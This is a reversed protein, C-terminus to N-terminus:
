GRRPLGRRRRVARPRRLRRGARELAREPPVVVDVHEVDLRIREDRQEVCAGARRCRRSRVRHDRRIAAEARVALGVEVCEQEEATRAVDLDDDGVQNGGPEGHEVARAADALRRQEARADGPRQALERLLREDDHERTPTVIGRARQGVVDGSRGSQGAPVPEDLRHPARGGIAIDVEDEVLGLLVEEVVRLVPANSRSSASSTVAGSRTSTSRETRSSASALSSRKLASIGFM